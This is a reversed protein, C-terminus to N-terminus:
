PKAELRIVRDMKSALQEDHTAVILTRNEALKLLNKTVEEATATDLHATPEDALVLHTDGDAMARALALRLAEGGSLGAGGEGIAGNHNAVVFSLAAQEIALDIDTNSIEKRGLRINSKLTGSFLHPKQGVWAMSQRFANATEDSLETGNVSVKGSDVSVLGALIALLTSKGSGSPGLLALKEGPRVTLSYNEFVPINTRQHQFHINQILVEPPSSLKNNKSQKDSHLIKLNHMALRDLAAIGAKGSARDHWAASLEQLPEFFAPALLLIFLGQGLTLKTGWAGYTIDGLLQFGVYVAVMAVGLASFFELTASSLFAIRLVIMTKQKLTEAATRFRIATADVADLSRISNLGRLRDLLFANMSGVEIMQEESAKKARFGILAMFVPILPACFILILAALWSHWSVCLLIASPIIVLKYKVPSFRQLFPLIAETQEAIISAATGSPPKQTDLPSRHALVEATAARLRSIAHRATKFIIRSGIMDIFARLIGLALVSLAPLVVENFHGDSALRHIAYAILGAQLLWILSATSQLLSGTRLGPLNSLIPKTFSSSISNAVSVTSVSAEDAEAPTEQRASAADM